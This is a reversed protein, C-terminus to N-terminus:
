TRTRADYEAVDVSLLDAQQDVVTECETLYAARNEPAVTLSGAVVIM